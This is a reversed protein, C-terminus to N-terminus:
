GNCINQLTVWDTDSLILPPAPPNISTDPVQFATPHRSESVANYPGPPIQATAFAARLGERSAQAFAGGAIAAAHARLTDAPIDGTTLLRLTTGPGARQLVSAMPDTKIRAAHAALIYGAIVAPEDTQELLSRDLAILEGPLPVAGQKLNPLVVIRAGSANGFLRTALTAAATAGAKERCITGIERQLHGLIIAGIETRKSPPIVTLTQRQLAGPLWFVALALIAAILTASILYRLKGPQPRARALAKRVEEIADIMLDDAIEIAESADSDPVFIAPREGPNQRGIAPLSWHTLPRGVTDAIVLTADGFSVVVERRQAGTDARWLGSSELRVYRDLATM